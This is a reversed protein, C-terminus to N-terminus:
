IYALVTKNQGEHLFCPCLFFLYHMNFAYIHFRSFHYLHINCPLFLSASMSFLYMSLAPCLPPIFQSISVSMYVSCHTFYTSLPFRSYLVPFEARHHSLYTPHPLSHSTWSPPSIPIHTISESQKVASVLVINYLM